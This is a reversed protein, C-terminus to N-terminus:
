IMKLACMKIKRQDDEEELLIGSYGAAKSSTCPILDYFHFASHLATTLALKRAM